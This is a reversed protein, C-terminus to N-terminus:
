RVIMASYNDRISEKFRIEGTATNVTALDKNWLDNEFYVFRSGRIKSLSVSLWRALEVCNITM